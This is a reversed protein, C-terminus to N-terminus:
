YSLATRGRFGLRGHVADLQVAVNKHVVVEMQEYLCGLAVETFEHTVEADGIGAVKVPPV